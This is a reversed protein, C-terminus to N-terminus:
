MASLEQFKKAAFSDVLKKGVTWKQLLKRHKFNPTAQALQM